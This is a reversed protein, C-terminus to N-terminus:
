EYIESLRDPDTIVIRGKQEKILGKNKFKSMTRISTEVTTGVMDAIDQKTLRMDILVGDSTKKGMKSSLKLLLSAIRSEVRELAINKLMEQSGRMREGIDMALRMMLHPFRDLLKMLSSRSIKALETDEMAIASAPYPFGKMVAVAGFFEGESIIELILEKGDNSYKIIKVRGSKILYFSDPQSGEHFITSKKPYKEVKIYKSLERLEEDDLDSFLEFSRLWETM